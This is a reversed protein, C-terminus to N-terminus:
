QGLLTSSGLAGSLPSAGRAGTLLTSGPSSFGGASSILTRRDVTSTPSRKAQKAPPIPVKPLKPQTLGVARGLNSGFDSIGGVIASAISGCM